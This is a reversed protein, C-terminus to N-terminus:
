QVQGAKNFRGLNQFFQQFITLSRGRTETARDVIDVERGDEIGYAKVEEVLDSDDFRIELVKRYLVDPDLFAIQETKESIYYWVKADFTAMSSPHGLMDAVSDKNDVGTRIESILEEDPVYGRTEIQTECAGVFLPIALVSLFAFRRFSM